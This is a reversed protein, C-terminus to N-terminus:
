VQSPAAALLPPRNSAQTEASLLSKDPTPPAHIPERILSHALLQLKTSLTFVHAASSGDLATSAQLTSSQPTHHAPLITPSLTLNLAVPYFQGRQRACEVWWVDRGM